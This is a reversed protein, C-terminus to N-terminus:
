LENKMFKNLMEQLYAITEHESDLSEPHSQVGLCMTKPYYVIECEREPNMEKQNGDEHYASIGNTWGLIRYNEKPLKFPFAAQHHTSTVELTRNDYTKMAHLYSPNDQHQVLEGGNLVALLQSGRCTGWIHKKLHIAKTFLDAEEIDRSKSSYTRPHAKDTYMDPSIDQGGTFVVLDADELKDALEGQMWRAYHNDGGVVYIKRM